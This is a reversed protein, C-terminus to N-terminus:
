EERLAQIAEIGTARAAPVLSAGFTALLLVAVGFGVAVPDAPSMEFLQARVLWALPLVIALGVVLGVVGLKMGDRTIAGLVQRRRAGVAMRIAIERTRQTVSFSVVGYIGVLALVLAFGGGWGLVVSAMRLHLFQISIMSELTSAAVVPVEGDALEVERRLLAIMAEANTRGKVLVAFRSSDGQYISTWYYPTPPDDIDGFKGDRTVGVVEYSARQPGGTFRQGIPSHDPWFRNAFTENIVAVPLAGEVDGDRLTRGRLLAIGLMELYGPTVANSYAQQAQSDDGSISVATAGAQMLTLEVAGSAQADEVEPLAALRAVLDRVYQRAAEPSYEDSALTKTMMAIRDPQIGLDMVTASKLSRLFLGAGVLLVLSAAVQAVVLVNRMGFRGSRGASTSDSKLSAVLDRRASALAPTLGFVVSVGVALLMAFGLVRHDLSFDFRLPIAVPLSVSSMTRTALGALLVGVVGSALGPLVSETLFMAVLRRRSAGLAIRVATERRRQHARALYLSAVNSCAALLILGTVVLPFLALITLVARSDPNIRSARESLATLVRAQGQHDEWAQRHQQHMREAVVDLQAQVQAITVGDGLRGMVAFSRRDRRDLDVLTHRYGASPIGLPVWVDTKFAMRRSTLGEPAVGIVTYLQGSLRVERGLVGPDGGFNRLWLDHSIVSVRRASGKRSEEPLFARGIAPRIGLVDFYNGSVQEAVLVEPATGEGLAITDHASAAVGTLANNGALVDEYEPYSMRGYLKGDDRSAYLTVLEQPDTLGSPPRLLLANTVSFVSTAAGIGLGLSVVTVLVTTPSSSLSRFARRLDQFFDPM